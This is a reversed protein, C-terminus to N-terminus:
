SFNISAGLVDVSVVFIATIIVVLVDPSVVVDDPLAVAVSGRIRLDVTAISVVLDM